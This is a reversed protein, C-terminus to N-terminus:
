FKDAQTEESMEPYSEDSLQAHQSLRVNTKEEHPFDHWEIEHKEGLERMIVEHIRGIEGELKELETTSKKGYMSTQVPRWIFEKVRMTTWRGEIGVNKITAIVSYGAENLTQAVLALMPEVRKFDKVDLLAGVNRATWDLHFGEKLFKQMTIDEKNLKGAIISCDKHLGRNQQPSRQTM